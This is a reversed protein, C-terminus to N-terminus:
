VLLSEVRNPCALCGVGGVPVSAQHAYTLSRLVSLTDFTEVSVHGGRSEYPQSHHEGGPAPSGVAEPSGRKSLCRVLAHHSRDRATKVYMQSLVEWPMPVLGDGVM